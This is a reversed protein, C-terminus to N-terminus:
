YGCDSWTKNYLYDVKTNYHYTRDVISEIRKDKYYQQLQRRLTMKITKDLQYCLQKTFNLVLQFATHLTNVFILKINVNDRSYVLELLSSLM